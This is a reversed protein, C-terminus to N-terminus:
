YAGSLDLVQRIRRRGPPWGLVSAPNSRSRDAPVEVLPRSGLPWRGSSPPCDRALRRYTSCLEVGGAGPDSPRTSPRSRATMSSCVVIVRLDSRGPAPAHRGYWPRSILRHRYRPGRRGWRGAAVGRPQGQYRPGRHEALRAASRPGVTLRHSIGSHL